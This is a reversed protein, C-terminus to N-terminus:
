IKPEEDKKTVEYGQYNLIDKCLQIFEDVTLNSKARNAETTLIGLNELTNEGGKSQPIIHDFHYSRKDFIDIDKGTLYCKPNDGFKAIVDKVWFNPAQKVMKEKNRGPGRLRFFKNIRDSIIEGKTKNANWEKQQSQKRKTRFSHYKTLFPHANAMRRQNRNRRQIKVKETPNLHYYVTHICNGLLQGIKKYSFGQARLDRMKQKQEESIEM